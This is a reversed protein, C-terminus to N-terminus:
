GPPTGTLPLILLPVSDTVIHAIINAWLNRRWVFALTFLAAAVSVFLLHAMGWSPLHLVVFVGFPIVVAIATSGTAVKLRSIPYGRFLIEETVGATLLTGLRLWLPMTAVEALATQPNPINLAKLIL